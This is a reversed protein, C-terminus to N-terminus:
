PAGPRDSLFDGAGLAPWTVTLLHPTPELAFDGAGLAPWIVAPYREATGVPKHTTASSPQTGVAIAAGLLIAVAPLAAIAVKAVQILTSSTPYTRKM